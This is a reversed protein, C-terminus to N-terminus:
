EQAKADVNGKIYITAELEWEVTRNEREHLRRLGSLMADWSANRGSAKLVRFETRIGHVPLGSTRKIQVRNIEEGPKLESDVEEQLATWQQGRSLVDDLFIANLDEPEPDSERQIRLFMTIDKVLHAIDASELQNHTAMSNAIASTHPPKAEPSPTSGVDKDPLDESTKSDISVAGLLGTTAASHPNAPQTTSM